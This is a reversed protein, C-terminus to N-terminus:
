QCIDGSFEQHGRGQQCRRTDLDDTVQWLGGSRVLRLQHRVDRISDDRLGYVVVTATADDADQRCVDVTIRDADGEGGDPGVKLNGVHSRAARSLAADSDLCEGPAATAGAGSKGSGGDGGCGAAALAMGALCLALPGGGRRM